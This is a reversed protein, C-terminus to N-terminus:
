PSAMKFDAIESIADAAASTFRFSSAPMQLVKLCCKPSVGSVSTYEASSLKLVTGALNFRRGFASLARYWPM